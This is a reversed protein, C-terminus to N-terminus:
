VALEIIKLPLQKELWLLSWSRRLRRRSAQPVIPVVVEDPQSILLLLSAFLTRQSNDETVLLLKLLWNGWSLGM